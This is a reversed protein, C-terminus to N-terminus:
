PPPPPPPATARIATAGAVSALSPPSLLSAFHPVQIIRNGNYAVVFKKHTYLLPEGEGEGPVPSGEPVEPAALEGVMGWIPLDDLFFQYWDPRALARHSRPTTAARERELALVSM